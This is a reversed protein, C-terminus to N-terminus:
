CTITHCPLKGAWKPWWTSPEQSLPDPPSFSYSPKIQSQSNVKNHAVGNKVVLSHVIQIIHIDMAM